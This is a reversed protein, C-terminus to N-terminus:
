LIESGARYKPTQLKCSLSGVQWLSVKQPKSFSAFDSEINLDPVALAVRGATRLLNLRSTAFESGAVALAFRGAWPPRPEDRNARLKKKTSHRIQLM